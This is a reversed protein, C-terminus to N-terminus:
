FKLSYEKILFNGVFKAKEKIGEKNLHCHDLWYNNSSPQFENFPVIKVDNVKSISDM